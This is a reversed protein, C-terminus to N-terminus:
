IQGFKYICFCKIMQIKFLFKVSIGGTLFNLEKLTVASDLSDFILAIIFGTLSTTSRHIPICYVCFLLLNRIRLHNISGISSRFILFIKTPHSM